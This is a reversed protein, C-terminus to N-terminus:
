GAAGATTAVEPLNAYPDRDHHLELYSEAAALLAKDEVGYADSEAMLSLCDIIQGYRWGPFRKRIESLVYQLRDNVAPDYHDDWPYHKM